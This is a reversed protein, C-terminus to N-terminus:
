NVGGTPPTSGYEALRAQIEEPLIEAIERRAAMVTEATLRGSPYVQVFRGSWSGAGLTDDAVLDAGEASRDIRYARQVSRAPTSVSLVVVEVRDEAESPRVGAALAGRSSWAEAM